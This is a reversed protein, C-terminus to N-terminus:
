LLEEGRNLFGLQGCIVNADNTSWGSDCITSWTEDLCTEVRGEAMSPGDILRLSMEECM